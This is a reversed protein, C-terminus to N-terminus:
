KNNLNPFLELFEQLLVSNEVPKAIFKTAGVKFSDERDRRLVNATVVVIPTHLYNENQRLEEILELGNKDARLALDILFVDYINDKMCSYFEQITQAISIEFNKSLVKSFIKVIWEDDEVILLKPMNTM